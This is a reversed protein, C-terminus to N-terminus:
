NGLLVFEIFFILQGFFDLDLVFIIIVFILVFFNELVSVFFIFQNFVLNNDNENIVYIVVSVIIMFKLDLVFVILDFRLILEFDILIIINIWGIVFNIIFYFKFNGGIISYM